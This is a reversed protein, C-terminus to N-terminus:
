LFVSACNPVHPCTSLTVESIIQQVPVQVWTDQNGLEASKRKPYSIARTGHLPPLRGFPTILNPMTNSPLKLSLLVLVPALLGPVRCSYFWLHYRFHGVYTTFLLVDAGVDTESTLTIKLTLSCKTM